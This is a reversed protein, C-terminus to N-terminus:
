KTVGIEKLTPADSLPPAVISGGNKKGRGPGTLRGATGTARPSAFRHHM